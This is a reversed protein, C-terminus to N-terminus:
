HPHEVREPPVEGIGHHRATIRIKYVVTRVTKDPVGIYVPIKIAPIFGQDQAPFM